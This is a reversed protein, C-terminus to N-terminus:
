FLKTQNENIATKKIEPIKKKKRKTYRKKNPSKTKTIKGKELFCGGCYTLQPDHHCMRIEGNNNGIEKILNQNICSILPSIENKKRYFQGGQKDILNKQNNLLYEPIGTIKSALSKRKFRMPIIQIGISYKKQAERIRKEEALIDKGILYLSYFNSNVGAEKYKIAQKIRWENSCGQLAAGKSLDDWDLSYLLSSKTKKILESINKDFPLFKTPIIARTETELCAELTQVFNNKVFENYSETRKGFRLIKVKRGLTEGTGLDLIFGGNLEEILRKKDFKYITKPFVRHKREAYCYICEGWPYFWFNHFSDGQLGSWGRGSIWSSICGKGFDINAEPLCDPTYEQKGPTLIRAPEILKIKTEPVIKDITQIYNEKIEKATKGECFEEIDALFFGQAENRMNKELPLIEYNVNQNKITKPLKTQAVTKIGKKRWTANNIVYYGEEKTITKSLKTITRPDSNKNLIFVDGGGEKEGMEYSFHAIHKAEFEPPLMSYVDKQFRYVALYNAYEGKYIGATPIM